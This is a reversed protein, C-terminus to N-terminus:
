VATAIISHTYFRIHAMKQHYPREELVYNVKNRRRKRRTTNIKWLLARLVAANEPDRNFFNEAMYLPLAFKGYFIHDFEKIKIPDLKRLKSKLVEFSNKFHKEASAKLRRYRRQVEADGVDNKFFWWGDEMHLRLAALAEEDNCCEQFIDYPLKKEIRPIWSM